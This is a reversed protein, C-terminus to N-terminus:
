RKYNLRQGESDTQMEWAYNYYDDICGPTKRLESIKYMECLKELLVPNKYKIIEHIFM